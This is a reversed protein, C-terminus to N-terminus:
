REANGASEVLLAAEFAEDENMEAGRAMAAELEDASLKERLVARVRECEQRDTPERTAGLAAFRKDVYGM